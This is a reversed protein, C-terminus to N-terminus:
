DKAQIRKRKEKNEGESHIESERKNRRSQTRIRSKEEGKAKRTVDKLRYTSLEMQQGGMVMQGVAPSETWSEVMQGNKLKEAEGRIDGVRVLALRLNHLREMKKNKECFVVKCARFVTGSVTASRMLEV